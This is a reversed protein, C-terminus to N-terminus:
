WLYHTSWCDGERMLVIYIGNHKALIEDIRHTVEVGRIDYINFDINLTRLRGFSTRGNQIDNLIQRHDDKCKHARHDVSSTVCTSIIDEESTCHSGNSAFRRNHQDERIHRCIPEANCYDLKECFLISLEGDIVLDDSLENLNRVSSLDFLSLTKCYRLKSLFSLSEMLWFSQLEIAGNVVQLNNALVVKANSIVVMSMDGEVLELNNPMRVTDLACGTVQLNGSVSRLSEWTWACSGELLQVAGIVEKVYNFNKWDYSESISGGIIDIDGVLIEANDMRESWLDINEQSSLSMREFRFTDLQSYCNSAFFTILLLCWFYLSNISMNM